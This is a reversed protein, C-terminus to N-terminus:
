PVNQEIGRYGLRTYGRVFGGVRYGNQELLEFFDEHAKAHRGEQGSFGKAQARLEEDDIRDLYRHVSRVFFREGAPFLLNVGNAVHTAIVNDGFWLRPVGEFALPPQRPRIPPRPAVM